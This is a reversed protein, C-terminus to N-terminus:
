LIGLSQLSPIKDAQDAAGMRKIDEAIQTHNPENFGAVGRAPSLGEGMKILIQRRVDPDEVDEITSPGGPSRLMTDATIRVERERRRRALTDVVSLVTVRWTRASEVISVRSKGRMPSTGGSLIAKHGSAHGEVADLCEKLERLERIDRDEDCEELEADIKKKLVEIQLLLDDLADLLDHQQGGVPNVSKKVPRLLREGQRFLKERAYHVEMDEVSEYSGVPRKQRRQPSPPEPNQPPIGSFKGRRLEELRQANKARRVNPIPGGPGAPVAYPNLSKAMRQKQRPRTNALPSPSTSASDVEPRQPEIQPVPPFNQPASNTMSPVSERPKRQKRKKKKKKKSMLTPLILDLLGKQEAKKGEVKAIPKPTESKKPRIPKPKIPVIKNGDKIDESSGERVIELLKTKGKGKGEDKGIGLRLAVKDAVTLGGEPNVSTRRASYGKFVDASKNKNKNKNKNSSAQQNIGQQDDVGKIEGTKMLRDWDVSGEGTTDEEAADVVVVTEPSARKYTASTGDQRAAKFSELDRLLAQLDMVKGETKVPKDRAQKGGVRRKSPSLARRYATDRCPTQSRRRTYIVFAFWTSTLM